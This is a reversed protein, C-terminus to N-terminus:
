YGMKSKPAKKMKPLYKELIDDSSKGEFIENVIESFIKEDCYHFPFKIKWCVDLMNPTFYEKLKLIKDLKVMFLFEKDYIWGDNSNGSLDCYLVKLLFSLEEKYKNEKHLLISMEMLISRYSEFAKKSFFEFSKNNYIHWVVDNYSFKRDMNKRVKEYEEVLISTHRLKLIYDNEKLLKEGKESLEFINSINIQSIDTEEIIRKILEKKNGTKKLSNKELIEKLENITKKHLVTDISAKKLFNESIMKKHFKQCDQIGYDYLFYKPYGDNNSIGMGNVWNLFVVTAAKENLLPIVNLPQIEKIQENKLKKGKDKSSIFIVFVLLLLIIFIM